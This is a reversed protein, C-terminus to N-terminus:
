TDFFVFFSLCVFMCVYLCVSLCVYLCILDNVCLPGALVSGTAQAAQWVPMKSVPVCFTTEVRRTRSQNQPANSQKHALQQHQYTRTHHQTNQASSHAAADGYNRRMRSAGQCVDTGLTPEGSSVFKSAYCSTLHCDMHVNVHGTVTDIM